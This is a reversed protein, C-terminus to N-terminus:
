RSNIVGFDEMTATINPFNKFLSLDFKDAEFLVDANVSKALEKDIAAKIDDKFVAPLILAAAVILVLLGGFIILVWKIAKKM